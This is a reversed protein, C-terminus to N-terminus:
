NHNYNSMNRKLIDKLMWKKIDGEIVWFEDNEEKDNNM